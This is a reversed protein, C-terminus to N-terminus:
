DRGHASPIAHGLARAADGLASDAQGRDLTARASLAVRLLAAVDGLASRLRSPRDTRVASLADAADGFAEAKRRASAILEPAMTRGADEACDESIALFASALADPAHRAVMAAFRVADAEGMTLTYSGESDKRADVNIAFRSGGGMPRGWSIVPRVDEAVPLRGRTREIRCPAGM